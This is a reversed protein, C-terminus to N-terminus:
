ALSSAGVSSTAQVVLEYRGGSARHRGIRGNWSVQQPGAARQGSRLTAVSVGNPRQVQVLLTAARTLSFTATPLRHRDTRLALSSLTDDLSFTRQATTTIKRDDTGTVTLTWKGEAAPSSQVLGNWGLVHLGPSEAGNALTIKANGPGTLTAVVT